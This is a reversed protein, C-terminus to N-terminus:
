YEMSPHTSLVFFVPAGSFDEDNKKKRFSDMSTATTSIFGAKGEEVVTMKTSPLGQRTMRLFSPTISFAENPFHGGGGGMDGCMCNSQGCSSCTYGWVTSAMIMLLVMPMSASQSQPFTCTVTM